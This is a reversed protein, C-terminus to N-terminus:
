ATIPENELARELYWKCVRQQKYRGKHKLGNAVAQYKALLINFVNVQYHLNMYEANLKRLESVKGSFDQEIALHADREWCERKLRTIETELFDKRNILAQVEAKREELCRVLFKAEARSMRLRM